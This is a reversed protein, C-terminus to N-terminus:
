LKKLYNGEIKVGENVIIFAHEDHKRVIRRLRHIEYKSILIYYMKSPKGTYVGTSDLSTIGRGMTEMIEKLMGDANVSTIIKVEVDINQTHMKDIAFSCVAANIVSYIVTNISFLILCFAYLVFNVALTIKGVSYAKKRNLVLLGIIDMGGASSSMRLTIGSGVGSIIGGIICSAIIDDGLIPVKPVPVLSLFVTITTACLLSRYFFQRGLSRFALIFLPINVAYYVIGTFDIYSLASLHLYDTLVTRVLQCLGVIGGNYLGLPVIFLNTGLAYVLTGAVAALVGAASKATVKKKEM